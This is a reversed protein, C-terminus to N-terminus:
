CSLRKLTNLLLDIPDAGRMDLYLKTKYRRGIIAPELQRFSEELKQISKEQPHALAIAVSPLKQEPQAGSGVQADTQEVTISFDPLLEVLLQQVLAGRHRLIRESISLERFLKVHTALTHPDEYAKLTEDLVTLTIKDVRLARKLPNKNLTQCISKSGLLIGAQPGGLLKDGSFTVVDCGWKLSKQPQQEYRLGFRETNVLAGSGLDVALPIGTSQALSVLEQETAEETFGHIAYNSKHIKLILGTHTTIAQQYDNLRTRNTTGVEVLHCGARSMLEPLRFSGGIEILEGRSVLVEKNLAFTNLLLVLAAANNNVVIASDANTLRRLRNEIISERQGRKGTKLDYELALPSQCRSIARQLLETDLVVRGLNTHIVTGSLNFVRAYGRDCHLHLWGLVSTRYDELSRVVNASQAERIQAQIARIAETTAHFGWQEVISQFQSSRIVSDVSPLSRNKSPSTM